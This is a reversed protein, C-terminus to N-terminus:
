GHQMEEKKPRNDNLKGNRQADILIACCAMVHALPHLGSEPDQDQGDFWDMLHRMAADYYVTSSVTKQRWNFAGYKGAGGEMALGLVRLAIPPTFSMPPKKVGYATKPNDDPLDQM